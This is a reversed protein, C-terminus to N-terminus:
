DDEYNPNILPLVITIMSNSLIKKTLESVKANKLDFQTNLSFLFDQMNYTQELKIKIKEKQEKNLDKFQTKTTKM